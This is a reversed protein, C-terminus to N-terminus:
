LLGGLSVPAAFREGFLNPNPMLMKQSVPALFEGYPTAIRDSVSGTNGFNRGSSSSASRPHRVETAVTDKFVKANKETKASTPREGSVKTNQLNLEVSKRSFQSQSREERQHLAHANEVMDKWLTLEREQDM